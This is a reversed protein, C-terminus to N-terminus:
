GALDGAEVLVAGGAAALRASLEDGGTSLVPLGAWLYDLLRTRFALETEVGDRHLSVGLDAEALYAGREAYPTWGELFFVTRGTLGLEDAAQRAAAAARMRPVGPDPHQAGLFVVRLGPAHASATGAARVLLE